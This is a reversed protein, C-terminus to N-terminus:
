AEYPLDVPDPDCMFPDLRIEWFEKFREDYPMWVGTHPDEVFLNDPHGDWAMRAIPRSVEESTNRKFFRLLKHLEGGDLYSTAAKRM